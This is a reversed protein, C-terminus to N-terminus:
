RTRRPMPTLDCLDTFLWLTLALYFLLNECKPLALFSFYVGALHTLTHLQRNGTNAAFGASYYCAFMASVSALLSFCYAETQPNGSWQRYLCILNVMLYVCIVMSFLASPHKGGWRCSALFGLAAASLLGLVGALVSLSDAAARLNQLATILLCVAAMGAGLTGFLSPPFNFSYKPAQKLDRTALVLMVGIGITLVWLLPQTAHGSVLLGKEDVGTAFLLFRLFAGLCGAALVAYPLYETRLYEKLHKYM